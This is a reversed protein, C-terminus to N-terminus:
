LARAHLVVAGSLDLVALTQYDVSTITIVTGTSAATGAPLVIALDGPRHKESAQSLYKFLNQWRVTLASVGIPASNSYTGTIPDYTRLTLSAAAPTTQELKLCDTSLLGAASTHAALVLYTEGTTWLVDQVRVDSGVPLLVEFLQPLESSVEVQADDKIWNASSWLTSTVTGSLFGSLRSVKLSGTVPQLVYKERHLEQLGDPEMTGVLWTKGLMTVVRGAPITTGPRVSLIRRYSATGDRKSDDFPDIQGKFLLVGTDPDTAPTLDFYSAADVLKM